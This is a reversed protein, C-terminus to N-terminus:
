CVILGEFQLNTCLNSLDTQLGEVESGLDTGSGGFIRGGSSGSELAEIRDELDGLDRVAGDLVGVVTDMNYGAATSSPAPESQAVQAAQTALAAEAQAREAVEAVDALASRTVIAQWGAVGALVLSVAAVAVIISTSFRGM